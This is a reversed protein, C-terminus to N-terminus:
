LSLAFGHTSLSVSLKFYDTKCCLNDSARIEPDLEACILANYMHLNEPRQRMSLLGRFDYFDVDVLSLISGEKSSILEIWHLFRLSQQMCSDIKM